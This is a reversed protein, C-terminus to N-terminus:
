TLRIPPTSADLTYQCTVPPTNIPASAVNLTLQTGFDVVSRDSVLHSMGCPIMSDAVSTSSSVPALMVPLIKEPVAAIKFM